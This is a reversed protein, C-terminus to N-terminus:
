VVSKGPRGNSRCLERYSAVISEAVDQPWEGGLFARRIAAGAEALSLRGSALDNLFGAIKDRLGNAAVFSWYAAATMAYGPPVRIGKSALTGVMEGLSANKGGVSAVDTRRVADFPIAYRQAAM